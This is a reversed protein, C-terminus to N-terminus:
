LKLEGEEETMALAEDWAENLSGKLTTIVYRITARVVWDLGQNVDLTFSQVEERTAGLPTRLEIADFVYGRAAEVETPYPSSAPDWHTKSM